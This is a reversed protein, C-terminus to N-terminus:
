FSRRSMQIPPLPSLIIQPPFDMPRPSPEGRRASRAFAGCVEIRDSLTQLALAHPKAAMGLGVVAVGLKRSM